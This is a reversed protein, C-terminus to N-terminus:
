SDDTEYDLSGESGDETCDSEATNAEEESGGSVWEEYTEEELVGVVDGHDSDETEGVCFASDEHGEDSTSSEDAKRRGGTKVRSKKVPSPYNPFNKRPDWKYKDFVEGSTSHIVAGNVIAYNWRQPFNM